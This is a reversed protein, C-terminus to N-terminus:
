DFYKLIKESFNRVSTKLSRRVAKLSSKNGGVRGTMSYNMEGLLKYYDTPLFGECNEIIKAMGPDKGYLYYLTNIRFLKAFMEHSKSFMDQLYYPVLLENETGSFVYEPFIAKFQQLTIKWYQELIKAREYILRNASENTIASLNMQNDRIRYSVTKEPVVAIGVGNILLRISMDFDQLQLYRRDFSGFQHFVKMDALMTPGALVNGKLFFTNLLQKPDQNEIGSEFVQLIQKAPSKQPDLLVGHEDILEIDSFVVSCWENRKLFEVQREIKFPTAMRDDGCITAIYRGAAQRLYVDTSDSVGRNKKKTILNIRPDHYSKVLDVTEDTSCDDVVLIELNQWTQELISDICEKIYPAHNYTVVSVTILDEVKHNQKGM